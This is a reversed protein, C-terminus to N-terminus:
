HVAHGRPKHRTQELVRITEELRRFGEEDGSSLIEQLMRIINKLLEMSKRRLAPNPIDIKKAVMTEVGPCSLLVCVLFFLGSICAKQRGRFSLRVIITDFNDILPLISPRPPVLLRREAM